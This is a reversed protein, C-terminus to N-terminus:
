VKVLEGNIVLGDLNMKRASRLAQEPTQVIPEDKLNFSTNILAKLGYKEACITLLDFLFPNQERKELIQIRSTGDVHVVAEIDGRKGSLIDFDYLMYQASIPFEEIGTYYRANEVLMVPAIPRYWERGKIRRSIKEAL